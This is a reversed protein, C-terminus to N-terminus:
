VILSALALGGRVYLYRSTWPIGGVRGGLMGMYLLLSSWLLCGATTYAIFKLLGMRSIGASFSILTRLIPVM